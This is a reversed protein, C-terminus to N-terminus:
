KVRRIAPSDDSGTAQRLRRRARAIRSMLTGKPIGLARAAQAYDLGGVTVALLAARQDPPLSAIGRAVAALELRAEVGGQVIGAGALEPAAMVAGQRASRACHDRFLNLLIKVLWPKLPRGPLWLARKRLAREATDQVLDDALDRDHCLGLAFRWLDPLSQELQRQFSAM